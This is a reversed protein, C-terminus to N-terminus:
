KSHETELCFQDMRSAAQGMRLLLTEAADGAIGGMRGYQLSQAKSSIARQMRRVEARQHKWKKELFPIVAPLDDVFYYALHRWQYWFISHQSLTENSVFVPIAGNLIADVAAKRYPADGPPQISFISRRHLDFYPKETLHYAGRVASGALSSPDYLKCASCKKCHRALEQRITGVRAVNGHFRDLSAIFNIVIDRHKEGETAVFVM